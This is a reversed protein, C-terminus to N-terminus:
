LREDIWFGEGFVVPIIDYEDGEAEQILSQLEACQEFLTTVLGYAEKGRAQFANHQRKLDNIEKPTLKM